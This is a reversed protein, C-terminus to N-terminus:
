APPTSSQHRDYADVSVIDSHRLLVIRDDGKEDVFAVTDWRRGCIMMDSRPVQVVRGTTLTVAFPVFPVAKAWERLPSQEM